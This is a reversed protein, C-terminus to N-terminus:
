LLRAGFSKFTWILYMEKTQSWNPSINLWLLLKLIWTSLFSIICHSWHPLINKQKLKKKHQQQQKKEKPRCSMRSHARNFRNKRHSLPGKGSRVFLTSSARSAGGESKNILCVTTTLILHGTSVEFFGLEMYHLLKYAPSGKEKVENTM